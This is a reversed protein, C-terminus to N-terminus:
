SGVQIGEFRTGTTLNIVNYEGDDVSCSSGGECISQYTDATQVQYWGDDPWSITNGEVSIDGVLEESAPVTLHEFRQGTTLNIVHYTGSAVTCTLGGQCISEYTQANQVQYWGDDPWSITNGSVQVGGSSAGGNGAVVLDDFRQGTDHNIVIYTGASVVCSSGGECVSEFTSANQVQHWGEAEWSITNGDIDIQESGGASGGGTDGTTNVLVSNSRRQLAPRLRLAQQSSVDNFKSYRPTLYYTYDVGPEVTSDWYSDANEAAVVLLEDNRWIQYSMTRDLWVGQRNFQLEVLGPGHVTIELNEGNVREPLQRTTTGILSQAATFAKVEILSNVRLNDPVDLSRTDAGGRALEQGDVLVQYSSVQGASPASWRIQWGESLQEIVLHQPGSTDLGRDKGPVVGRTEASLVQNATDGNYYQQGLLDSLGDGNGDVGAGIGALQVEDFLTPLVVRFGSTGDLADISLFDRRENGMGMIVAMADSQYGFGVDAVIDTLGDGDMDGVNGILAGSLCGGSVNDTVRTIEGSQYDQMARRLPVGQVGGYVIAAEFAYGCGFRSVLIDGYGDGDFDGAPAITCGFSYACEGFAYSSSMADVTDPAYSLDASGYLMAYQNVENIHGALVDDFGDGNLDGMARMGTVESPMQVLVKDAPLNNPDLYTIGALEGSVISTRDDDIILDDMGDGNVDGANSVNAQTYRGGILLGQDSGPASVNLTAGGPVSYVLAVEEKSTLSVLLDTRGDGNVDGATRLYGLPECGSVAGGEEEPADYLVIRNAGTETSGDGSSLVLILTPCESGIGEVRTGSLLLDAVGDGDIDPLIRNSMESSLELIEAKNDANFEAPYPSAQSNIAQVGLSLFLAFRLSRSNVPM